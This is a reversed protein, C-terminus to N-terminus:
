NEDKQYLVPLYAGSQASTYVGASGYSTGYQLWGNNRTNIFVVTGDQNVTKVAWVGGATPVTESANISKATDQYLYAYRGDPWKMNFGGEASVFEFENAQLAGIVKGAEASCSVATPYGYTKDSPLASLALNDNFVFLYKKGAVIETVKSYSSATKVDTIVMNAFKKSGSTSYGILYGTVQQLANLVFSGAISTPCQYASLQNNEDAGAVACNIYTGTSVTTAIVTVYKGLRAAAGSATIESLYTDVDSGKLTVPTPYNVTGADKKTVTSNADELQIAGKYSTVKSCLIEVNDGLAYDSENFGSNKFYLVSGTEDSLVFGKKHIATVQGIVYCVGGEIIESVKINAGSQTITVICDTKSKGDSSKSSFTIVGNRPSSQNPDVILSVVTTDCLDKKQKPLTAINGIKVWDVGPTIDLNVGKVLLKAQVNGGEKAASLEVPGASQLLAKEIKVITVDVLEWTTGNYISLPGEVTVVDGVSIGYSKLAGKKTEGNANKTGYIYLTSETSDDKIYFNGYTDSEAISTVTGKVKFTAGGKKTDLVEKVTVEKVEPVGQQVKIYQVEGGAVIKLTAQNCAETEAKASFVVDTSGAAGSVPAVTLWDPVAYGEETSFAWDSGATVTIVDKLSQVDGKAPMAAYSKSVTIGGLDDGLTAKTCGAALACVAAISAIIYKAKM